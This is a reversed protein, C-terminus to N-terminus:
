KGFALTIGWINSFVLFSGVVQLWARTGGDKELIDTDDDEIDPKMSNRTAIEIHEQSQKGSSEDSLGSQAIGTAKLVETARSASTM